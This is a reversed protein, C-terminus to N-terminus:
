NTRVQRAHYFSGGPYGIYGGMSSVQIVVGGAGKPNIERFVRVAEKTIKVPGWFNTDLQVRADSEPIGEADGYLGYGANNVVVDIRGFKDLAAKFVAAIDADSTVDLKAKIVNDADPLYALAEIKRATAVIHQSSKAIHAALAAGIGSSCGTM